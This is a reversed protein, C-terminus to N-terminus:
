PQDQVAAPNADRAARAALLADEVVEARRRGRARLAPFFASVGRPPGGEIKRDRGRRGAQPFEVRIRAPMWGQRNVVAAFMQEIMPGISTGSARTVSTSYRSILQLDARFGTLPIPKWHDSLGYM